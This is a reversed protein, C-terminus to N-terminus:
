AARRYVAVNWLQTGEDRVLESFEQTVDRFGGPPPPPVRLHARLVITGGIRCRAAMADLMGPAAEPTAFSLVDSASVFDYAQSAGAGGLDAQEFEIRCGSAGGAMRGFLSPDAEMLCDSPAELRGFLLMQMFLSRKTGVRELIRAMVSSYEVYHSDATQKAPFAGRYLVANLLSANGLLWVLANWRTKPFAARVLEDYGPEGPEVGVLEGIREPLVKRIVSSFSRLTREFRGVYALQPVAGARLGLDLLVRNPDEAIRALLDARVSASSPRYGMLCCFDDHGLRTLARLRVQAMALQRKSVDVCTLLEPELALFPAARAGSGAVCLFSRAGTAEAVAYELRSDEDGLSYNLRDFYATM